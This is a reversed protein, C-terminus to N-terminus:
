RPGRVIEVGMPRRKPRAIRKEDALARDISEIVHQIAIFKERSESTKLREFPKALEGALARREAILRERAASLNKVHENETDM